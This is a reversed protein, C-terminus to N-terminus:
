VGAYMRGPGLLGTPDFSEKVRKTLAALAREQPEFVEGVAARVSATARILTAHGGAPGVARRVLKAGADDAYALGIWVLGGAWDYLAECNARAAIRAVLEPAASPTTSIRWLPRVASGGEAAFPTVDRIGRWLAKSALAGVALLAGYPKMM